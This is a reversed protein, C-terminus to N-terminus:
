EINFDNNAIRFSRERYISAKEREGIKEYLLTLQVLADYYHPDIYITKQFYEEARDYSRLSNYILGMLFNADLNSSDEKLIKECLIRAEGFKGNKIKKKVEELEKNLDNMQNTESNNYNIQVLLLM